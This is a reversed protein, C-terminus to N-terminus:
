LAVVVVAGALACAAGLSRRLGLEEGLFIRALILVFVAAMQNLISALSADAYKFGGLWLLMALYAGLVSAPLLTIWVKSPRLIALADRHRPVLAIWGLQGVVGAILRITTVEVLPAHALVPKAIVVGIAMTIIGAVGAGIGPWLEKPVDASRQITAIAVGGVILLAGLAFMPSLSEGLFLVSLLTITPAYLLDVISLMSAGLKRLATFVLTDALSIGLIGSISLLMVDHTSLGDLEVGTFVLTLLLLISASTNKYLNLATPSAAESKKFLIVSVAWIAASGLALSAGLIENGNM